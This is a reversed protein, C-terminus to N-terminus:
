ESNRGLRAKRNSSVGSGAGRFQDWFQDRKSVHAGTRWKKCPLYPLDWNPEVGARAVVASGVVTQQVTLQSVPRGSRVCQSKRGM